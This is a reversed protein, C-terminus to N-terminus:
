IQLPIARTSKSRRDQGVCLGDRRKKVAQGRHCNKIVAKM